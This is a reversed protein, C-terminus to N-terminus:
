VHHASIAAVYVRLTSAARNEDLLSQLFHLVLPVPCVEPSMRQEKCWDSFFKWRYAYANRTSPARSNMITNQVDQDCVRLLPEPGESALCLATPMRSEPALDSRGVPPPSGEEQSPELAGRRLAQVDSSVLTERALRASSATAQPTGSPSQSCNGLDITYPSLCVTISRALRPSSCGSGSSQIKRSTFVLPPVPDISGLCLPGSRSQWVAAMDKVGGRPQTEVGGISTQPTVLFRGGYTDSRPHANSQYEGVSPLGLDVAGTISSSVPQIKHGRSPQHSLDSIYQRVQCSCAQRGFETCLAETGTASSTTGPHKYEGRKARFDWQGRVARRQWVAGWGTFSADTQVVERRSSDQRSCGRQDSIVEEEMTETHSPRATYNQDVQEQAWQSESSFHEGMEPLSSAFPPGITRGCSSSGAYGHTQPFVQTTAQGANSVAPPAASYQGGTTRIAVSDDITLGPYYRHVEGVSNTDVPEQQFECGPGAPCYPLAATHNGGSSAGSLSLLSALQGPISTDSARQGTDSGVGSGYVQHLSTPISFSRISASPVSISSGPICLPPIAQATSYNSCPLLCGKLRNSNGSRRSFM